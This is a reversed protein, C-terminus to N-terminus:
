YSDIFEKTSDDGSKLGIKSKILFLKQRVSSDKIHYIEAIKHASLRLRILMLFRLDKKTLIPFQAKLRKVFMNDANDLFVELEEWDNDDLVVSKVSGKIDDKDNENKLKKIIDIKKLLFGRINALQLEKNKINMEQVRKDKKAKVAVLIVIIASLALTIFILITMWQSEKQASVKKAEKDVLLKYYKDKSALEEANKNYLFIETSDAYRSVSTLDGEKKAVLRYLSYIVDGYDHYKERKIQSLLFKAKEINGAKYLANAFTLIASTDHNNRYCFSEEATKLAMAVNGSMDYFNSLDQLADAMVTSDKSIKAYGIARKSLLLCTDMKGKEYSLCEALNLLLYAKNKLSGSKVLDFSEYALKAYSISKNVDYESLIVSAKLFSMSKTLHDGTKRAAEISHDLCEIAKESSDNLMYYKGMYYQCKAYLSDDPKSYYYTYAIDLLSDNDVDLGSKDQAITYVLAYRAMEKRALRHQNVHNLMSLASDPSENVIAYASDIAKCHRDGCGTLVMICAFLLLLFARKNKMAYNSVFKIM